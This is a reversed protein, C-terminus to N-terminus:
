TIAGSQALVKLSQEATEKFDYKCMRKVRYNKTILHFDAEDIACIVYNKIRINKVSIWKHCLTCGLNRSLSPISHRVVHWHGSHHRNYDEPSHGDHRRPQPRRPLPPRTRCGALSVAEICVSSYEYQLNPHNM